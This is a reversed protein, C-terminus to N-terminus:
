QFLLNHLRDLITTLLMLRMASVRPPLEYRVLNIYVKPHGLAGGGGDCAVRRAEVFKVPVANIFEMASPPNPQLEWNTQEFRRVVVFLPILQTQRPGATAAAKSRQSPSWTTTRNAAQPLVATGAGAAAADSSMARAQLRLARRAASALM